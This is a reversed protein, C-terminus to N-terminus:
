SYVTGTREDIPLTMGILHDSTPDYLIKPILGSADECLWVNNGANHEHLYKALDNCRLEGEIIREKTDKICRVSFYTYLFYYLQTKGQSIKINM